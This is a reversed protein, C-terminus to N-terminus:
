KDEKLRYMMGNFHAKINGWNYEGFGDKIMMKQITHWDWCLDNDAVNADICEAVQQSIYPSYLQMMKYNTKITDEGEVIRDFLKLKKESTRAENIIDDIGVRVSGSLAPFRKTVTKLGAGRIGPLNDSADGVIARALAMNEPHVRHKEIIDQHSQVRKIAPRYIFTKDNLLQMFDKDNSVILKYKESYEEHQALYAIIDDAEINDHMFQKVPCQNLYEMLRGLQWYKNEREEEETLQQDVVRNYHRAQVTTRGDKYDSKISKRRRSGGDGDWVVLIQSPKNDRALKQIQKLFGKCGGIHEGTSSMSPDVAYSRYFTNLGDIIMVVEKRKNEETM